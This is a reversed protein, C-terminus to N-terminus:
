SSSASPLHAGFVSSENAYDYDDQQQQENQKEQRSSPILDDNDDAKPSSPPPPRPPKATTIKEEDEDDDSSSISDNREAGPVVKTNLTITSMGWKSKDHAFFLRRHHFCTPQIDSNPVIDQWSGLVKEGTDPNWKAVVFAEDPKANKGCEISTSIHNEYTKGTKKDVGKKLTALQKSRLEDETWDPCWTERNALTVDLIHKDLKRYFRVCEPDTFVMALSKPPNKNSLKERPTLYTNAGWPSRGTEKSKKPFPRIMLKEGDPGSMFVLGCKAVIKSSHTFHFKKYTNVYYSWHRVKRKRSTFKIQKTAPPTSSSKHKKSSGGKADSGDGDDDSNKGDSDSDQKKKNKPQKSKKAASAEVEEDDDSARKRKAGNKSKQPPAPPEDESDDSNKPPPSPKTTNKTTKQQKKPKQKQTTNDDEDSGSNNNQERKRKDGGGKSNKSKKSNNKEQVAEDEDDSSKQQQTKKPPPPPAASQKKKNKKAVKKEQEDSDSMTKTKSSSSHPHTNKFLAIFVCEFFNKNVNVNKKKKRPVVSFFVILKKKQRWGIATQKTKKNM